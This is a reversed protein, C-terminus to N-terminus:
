DVKLIRGLLVECLDLWIILLKFYYRKPLPNVASLIVFIQLTANILV